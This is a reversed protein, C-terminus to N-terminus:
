GKGEKRNHLDKGAPYVPVPEDGNGGSEIPRNIRRFKDYVVFAIKIRNQFQRMDSMQEMTMRVGNVYCAVALKCPIIIIYHNEDAFLVFNCNEAIAQAVQIIVFEDRKPLITDINVRIDLSEYGAGRAIREAM